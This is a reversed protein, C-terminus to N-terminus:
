PTPSGARLEEIASATSEPVVTARWEDTVARVTSAVREALVREADASAYDALGHVYSLREAELRYRQGLFLRWRDYPRVIQASGAALAAVAALLSPVLKGFVFAGTETSVVIAVPVLASSAIVAVGALWALRQM